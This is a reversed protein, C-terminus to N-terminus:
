SGRITALDRLDDADFDRPPGGALVDTLLTSEVAWYMVSERNRSHGPREPDDRGTDLILDVLGLLHGIEHTAVAQEIAGPGVLPSAAEEVADVFIAVVDGRVAVGLVTDSDAWRGHVFLLHVVVRADSQPTGVADAVARLEDANWTGDSSAPVAPGAVSSTAKRSVEGLVDTLHQLTGDQARIDSEALVEVVVSGSGQLIDRAFSGAPGDAAGEQSPSAPAAPLPADEATAPPPSPAQPSGSESPAPQPTAPEAAPSGTTTTDTQPGPAGSTTTAPELAISPTDDGGCGAVLLVPLLLILLRRVRGNM